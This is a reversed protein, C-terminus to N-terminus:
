PLGAGYIEEPTVIDDDERAKAIRQRQAERERRRQWSANIYAGFLITHALLYLAVVMLSILGLVQGYRNVGGVMQIYFPFAQTLAVFLLSAVLTGPWVDALRQRANPVIRYIVLFLMITSLLAVGYALFQTFRSTLFLRDLAEPLDALLFATPLISTLVSLVFLLLFLLIVIFGRQKEMIFSANRVGYIRNMGRAMSSILGTGVWAFFIFSVLSVLGSNQRAEIAARFAETSGSGEPFVTQITRVAAAMVSDNRLFLGGVGVLLFFIPVLAILAHYAISAALDVANNRTFGRYMWRVLGFMRLLGSQQTQRWVFPLTETVARVEVQENYPGKVRTHAASGVRIM